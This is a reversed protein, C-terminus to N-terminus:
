RSTARRMEFLLIGAAVAVNLSTAVGKMDIRVQLRGRALADESLGDGESGLLLLAPLRYPAGEYSTAARASTTVVDVDHTMAWDFLEDLSRSRAVLVSFITGMSAKVAAPDFPDATEGVIVVAGAGVGDATRVITGLNGPGSIGDLAVVISDETVELDALSREATRVLAGLGSPGDRESVAEYVPATVEVVALGAARAKEIRERAPRSTLLEPAVVLKEVPAGNDLAQWVPQIGDVFFAREQERAKRRRLARLRKVLPNATSSIVVPEDSV